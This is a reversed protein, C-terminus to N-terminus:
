KDCIRSVFGIMVTRFTGITRAKIRTTTNKKTYINTRAVTISVPVLHKSVIFALFYWLTGDGSADRWCDTAQSGNSRRYNHQFGLM